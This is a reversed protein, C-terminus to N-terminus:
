NTIAAPMNFTGAACSICPPQSALVDNRITAAMHRHTPHSTRWLTAIWFPKYTAPQWTDVGRPALSTFSCLISVFSGVSSCARAPHHLLPILLCLCPSCIRAHLLVPPCSHRRAFHTGCALQLQKPQKAVLYCIYCWAPTINASYAIPVDGSSTAPMNRLACMLRTQFPLICKKCIAKFAVLIGGYTSQSLGQVVRLQLKSTAIHSM